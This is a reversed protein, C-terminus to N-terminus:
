YIKTDDLYKKWDNGVEEPGSGYVNKFVDTNQEKTYSERTNKYLAKFKEVGYKEILFKTFSGVFCYYYLANDDDFEQWKKHEMMSEITPLIGKKLAKKALKDHNEGHWGHGVMYEALGEQFLAISLGWPLSLLHTDEHESVPKIDKTYLVHVIFDKLISQAYWDDGMLEKKIKADPYLYYIIKRKPVPTGLFDVIKKFGIEQTKSIQSIEKEAVTHPFYYFVYHETEYKLWDSNEKFDEKYTPLEQKIEILESM